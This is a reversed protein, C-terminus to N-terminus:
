AIANCNLLYTQKYIENRFPSSIHQDLVALANEELIYRVGIVSNYQLLTDINDNFAPNCIDTYAVSKFRLKCHKELWQIERQPNNNDFGAEIHVFGYCNLNGTLTIDAETFSKNIINKDPWFPPNEPRLWFYDGDVLNFLHIHPDIIDM